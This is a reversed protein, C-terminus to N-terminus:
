GKSSGKVSHIMHGKYWMKFLAHADFTSDQFPKLWRIPVAQNVSTFIRRSCGWKTTSDRLDGNQAGNEKWQIHQRQPENKLFVLYSKMTKRIYRGIFIFCFSEICDKSFQKFSMLVQISKFKRLRLLFLVSIMRNPHGSRQSPGSSTRPGKVVSLKDKRLVETHNKKM